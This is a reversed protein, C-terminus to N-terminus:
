YGKSPILFRPINKQRTIEQQEGDTSLTAKTKYEDRIKKICIFVVPRRCSFGQRMELLIIFTYHISNPNITSIHNTGPLKTSTDVKIPSQINM